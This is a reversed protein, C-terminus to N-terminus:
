APRVVALAYGFQDRNERWLAIEGAAADLVQLLDADAGPRLTAIRAELPTYYAEWAADDLVRLGCLDYGAARIRAKLTEIGGIEPYEKSLEWTLAPSPDDVLWALESFAVVGGPALKARFHRLGQEIGLFYLSGAAWVLDFPGEVEAMSGVRAEVRPDDGWRADVAEIFSRHLDIALVRGEPANAILGEIDAGPGCGADLIAANRPVHGTAFVWDLSERDGPAERPLDSHLQFFPNKM